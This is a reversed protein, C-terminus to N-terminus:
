HSLEQIINENTLNHKAEVTKKLAENMEAYSTELRSIIPWILKPISGKFVEGHVFMCQTGNLDKFEFYHEANGILNMALLDPGGWAFRKNITFDTIKAVIPFPIGNVNLKVKVTSGISKHCVIQPIIPNWSGYNEFDTFVSWATKAPANILTETKIEPM